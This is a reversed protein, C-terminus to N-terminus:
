DRLVAIRLVAVRAVHGPQRRQRLPPDPLVAPKPVQRVVIRALRVEDAEILRQGRLAVVGVRRPVVVLERAEHLLLERFDLEAVDVAPRGSRSGALPAARAAPGDNGRWRRGGGRITGRGAPLAEDER